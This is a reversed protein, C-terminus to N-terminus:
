GKTGISSVFRFQVQDEEIKPGVVKATTLVPYLTSYFNMVEEPQMEPDPDALTVEEGKLKFIFVRQLNNVLLM